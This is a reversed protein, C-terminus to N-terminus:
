QMQPQGKGSDNCNSTQRYGHAPQLEGTSFQIAERENCRCIHLAHLSSSELWVHVLVRQLQHLLPAAAIARGGEQMAQLGVLM